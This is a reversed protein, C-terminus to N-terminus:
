SCNYLRRGWRYGVIIWNSEGNEAGAELVADGDRDTRYSVPHICTHVAVVYISKFEARLGIGFDDQFPHGNIGDIYFYNTYDIFPLLM